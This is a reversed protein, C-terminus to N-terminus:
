DPAANKRRFCAPPCSNVWVLLTSASSRGCAISRFCRPGGRGAPSSASPHGRGLRRASPQAGCPSSSRAPEQGAGARGDCSMAIGRARVAIDDLICVATGCHGAACPRVPASVLVHGCQARLVRRFLVGWRSLDGAWAIVDLFSERSLANAQQRAALLDRQFAPNRRLFEWAWGRLTLRATYDYSSEDQWEAQDAGTVLVTPM